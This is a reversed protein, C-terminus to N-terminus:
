VCSQFYEKILKPHLLSPAIHLSLSHRVKHLCFWGGYALWITKRSLFFHTSIYDLTSAITDIKTQGGIAVYCQSPLRLSM